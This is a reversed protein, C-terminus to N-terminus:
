LTLPKKIDRHKLDIELATMQRKILIIAEGGVHMKRGGKLILLCGAEGGGGGRQHQRLKGAAPQEQAPAEDTRAGPQQV